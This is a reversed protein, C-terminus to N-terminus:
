FRFPLTKFHINLSLLLACIFPFTLNYFALGLYCCHCMRVTVPAAKELGVVVREPKLMHHSFDRWVRSVRELVYLSDKAELLPQHTIYIGGHAWFFSWVLILKEWLCFTALIVSNDMISFVFYKKKFKSSIHLSLFDKLHITHGTKHLSPWKPLCRGIKM